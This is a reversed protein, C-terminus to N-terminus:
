LDSIQYITYSNEEKMKAFSITHNKKLFFLFSFTAWIRAELSICAKRRKQKSQEM